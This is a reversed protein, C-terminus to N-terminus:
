VALLRHLGFAKFDVSFSLSNENDLRWLKLAQM